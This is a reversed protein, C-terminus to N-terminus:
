FAEVWVRGTLDCWDYFGHWVSDFEDTIQDFHGSRHLEGFQNVTWEMEDVIEELEDDEPFHPQIEARIRRAIELVKADIPMDDDNWIDGLLLKGSWPSKGQARREMAIEHSAVRVDSSARSM